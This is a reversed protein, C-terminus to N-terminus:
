MWVADTISYVLIHKIIRDGIGYRHGLVARMFSYIIRLMNSQLRRTSVWVPVHRFVPCRLPGTDSPVPGVSLGSRM